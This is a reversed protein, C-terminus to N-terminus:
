LSEGRKMSDLVFDDRILKLYGSLVASTGHYNLDFLEGDVVAIYNLLPKAQYISARFVQSAAANIEPRNIEMKSILKKEIVAKIDKPIEVGVAQAAPTNEEAYIPRIMLSLACICIAKFVSVNHANLQPKM